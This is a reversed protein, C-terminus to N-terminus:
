GEYTGKVKEHPRRKHVESDAVRTKGHVKIWAMGGAGQKIAFGVLDDIDKRSLKEGAGKFNLAKVIGGAKVTEAFIRFDSGTM